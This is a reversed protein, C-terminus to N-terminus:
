RRLRNTYPARATSRRAADRSSRSLRHTRRSCSVRPGFLAVTANAFLNARIPQASFFFSVCYRAALPHPPLAPCWAPPLKGLM